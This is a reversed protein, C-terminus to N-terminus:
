SMWSGSRGRRVGGSGIARKLYDRHAQTEYTTGHIDCRFMGRGGQPNLPVDAKTAKWCAPCYTINKGAAKESKRIYFGGDEVYEMDDDLELWRKQEDIKERLQRNERTLEIVAGELEVIKRYLDVNGIAKAVDAAEKLNEVIGMIKQGKTGSEIM